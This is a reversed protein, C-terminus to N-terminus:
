KAQKNDDADDARRDHQQQRIGIGKPDAFGGIRKITNKGNRWSYKEAARHRDIAAIILAQAIHHGRANRLNNLRQPFQNQPQQKGIADDPCAFRM